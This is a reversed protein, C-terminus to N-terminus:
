LTTITETPGDRIIEEGDRLAIFPIHNNILYDVSKDIDIAEPHDSKYHPAVVYALIDLGEWIIEPEYGAPIDHPPDVLEIGKLSPALMDIGASYGAYVFQDRELMAPLIQDLGSQKFARRLNFANGGRVWLIDCNSLAATLRAAQDPAGFYDRLDLETPKFGLQKLLSFETEVSDQRDSKTKHDAANAIVVAHTKDAALRVLESAHDGLRFSSLYLRM